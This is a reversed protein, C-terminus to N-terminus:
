RIEGSRKLALPAAAWVLDVTCPVSVANGNEGGPVFRWGNVVSIAENGWVPEGASTVHFRVPRGAEDVDFLLTVLAQRGMAAILRAEDSAAASIGEGLPYSTKLFHPRATGKPNGFAVRLLHWRSQKSSLLFTMEISAMMVEPGEKSAGPEFSWREAAAQAEEDLGLGLPKM